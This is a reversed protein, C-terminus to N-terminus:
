SVEQRKNWQELARTLNPCVPGHGGCKYCVVLHEGDSEETHLSESGCFPCSKAPITVEATLAYSPVGPKSPSRKNWDQVAKAKANEVEDDEWEGGTGCSKCVVWWGLLDEAIPEDYGYLAQVVSLDLSGCFPCPKTIGSSLIRREPHHKM